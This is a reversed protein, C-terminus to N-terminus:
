SLKNDNEKEAEAENSEFEEIIKDANSKINAFSSSLLLLGAIALVAFVSPAYETQALRNQAIMCIRMQKKQEDLSLKNWSDDVKDTFCVGEAKLREYEATADERAYLMWCLAVLSVVSLMLGYFGRKTGFLRSKLYDM